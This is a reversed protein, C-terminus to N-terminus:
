FEIKGEIGARIGLRWYNEDSSTERDLGLAIEAKILGREPFIALTEHKLVINFPHQSYPSEEGSISVALSEQHNYYGNKEVNEPVLPLKVGEPPYVFWKYSLQVEDSWSTLDAEDDWSDPETHQYNFRNDLTFISSNETEFSVYHELLLDSSHFTNDDYTLTLTLGAGYEDLKYFSFIPYAGYSGFLNVANNQTKLYYNNLFQVLDGDKKFERDLSLLLFSPIFLDSIRSSFLREVTISAEPRYFAEEYDKGAATFDEKATGSFLEAFPPLIFFYSQQEIDGAYVRLDDSLDGTKGHTDVVQLERSYGPTVTV